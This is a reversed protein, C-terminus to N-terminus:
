SLNLTTENNFLVIGTGSHHGYQTIDYKEHKIESWFREMEESLHIDDCLMIGKWNNQVLFNYFWIENHYLHDIDLFILESKLIKEQITSDNQFSGVLFEINSYPIENRFVGVDLSIVKNNQNQALAIASAGRYTGIDSIQINNYCYSLHILLRYHEKGSELHFWENAHPHIHEIHSTTLCDLIVNSLSIKM